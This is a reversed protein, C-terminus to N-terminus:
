LHYFYYFRLIKRQIRIPLAKRNLLPINFTLYGNIYGYLGVFFSIVSKTQFPFRFLWLLDRMILIPLLSFSFHKINLWAKNRFVFFSLIGRYGNSNDHHYVPIDSAFHITYGAGLMRMALDDEHLWLFFAPDYFGVKQIAEKRFVSAGGPFTYLPYNTVYQQKFHYTGAIPNIVNTAIVGVTKPLTRLVKVVKELTNPLIQCDSDLTFIIDGKALMIGATYGSVGSNQQMTVFRTNKAIQLDSINSANDSNIVVIIEYQKYMSSVISELCRKLEAKKVKAVLVLVTILHNKRIM